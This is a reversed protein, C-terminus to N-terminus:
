SLPVSYFYMASRILHTLLRFAATNFILATHKIHYAYIYTFRMIITTCVSSYSRCVPPLCCYKRGVDTKETKCNGPHSYGASNRAQITYCYETTSNLGELQHEYCRSGDEEVTIPDRAPVRGERDMYRISLFALPHAATWSVFIVPMSLCWLLKCGRYVNCTAYRVSNEESTCSRKKGWSVAVCVRHCKM